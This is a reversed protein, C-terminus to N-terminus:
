SDVVTWCVPLARGFVDPARQGKCVIVATDATEREALALCVRLFNLM